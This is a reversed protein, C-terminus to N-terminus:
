DWRKRFYSVFDPGSLERRSNSIRVSFVKRKGSKEAKVLWVPDPSPDVEVVCVGLGKVTEISIHTSTAATSDFEEGIRQTLHRVYRHPRRLGPLEGDLQRELEEHERDIPRPLDPGGRPVLHVRDPAHPGDRRQPYLRLPLVPNRQALPRQIDNVRPLGETFAPREHERHPAPPRDRRRRLRLHELPVLDGGHWVAEPRREPVPRGLPGVMPALDDLRREGVHDLVPNLGRVRLGVQKLAPLQQHVIPCPVEVAVAILTSPGARSNRSPVFDVGLSEVDRVSGVLRRGTLTSGSWSSGASM